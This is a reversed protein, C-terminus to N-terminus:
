QENTFHGKDAFEIAMQLAQQDASMDIQSLAQSKSQNLQTLANGYALQPALASTEALGGTQGTMAMIAPHPTKRRPRMKQIYAQQAATDFQTNVNQKQNSKM